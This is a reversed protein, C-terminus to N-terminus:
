SEITWWVSSLNPIRSVNRLNMWCLLFKGAAALAPRWHRKKSAAATNLAEEALAEDILGLIQFLRERKM